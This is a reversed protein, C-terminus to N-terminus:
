QKIVSWVGSVGNGYSDGSDKDKIFYYLPMGKWAYQMTGDTRKIVSINEPLTGTQSQATYPPWNQLCKGTTCNSIGMKDNAFIYLTIGKPDTMVMGLKDKNMFKFVSNQMAQTPKQMPQSTQMQYAQPGNTYPNQKHLFLYYVASYLIVAIVLYLVIWQWVPRKGYGSKRENQTEEM